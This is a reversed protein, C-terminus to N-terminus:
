IYEVISVGGCLVLELTRLEVVLLAPWLWLITAFLVLSIFTENNIIFLDNFGMRVNINGDKFGPLMNLTTM